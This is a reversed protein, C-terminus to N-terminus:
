LSSGCATALADLMARPSAANPLPVSLDQIGCGELTVGIARLAGEAHQFDRSLAGEITLRGAGAMGARATLVFGARPGTEAASQLGLTLTRLTLPERSGLVRVTGDVIRLRRLAIDPSALRRLVAALAAPLEHDLTVTLMPRRLELRSIRGGGAEVDWRDVALVLTEAVLPTGVADEFRAVLGDVKLHGSVLLRGNALLMTADLDARGEALQVAGGPLPFDRLIAPADLGRARLRVAYAGGGLPQGTARVSAGYLAMDVAFAADDGFAALRDLRASLERVVLPAREPDDEIVLAGQTVVLGNVSLPPPASGSRLGILTLAPAAGVVLRPSAVQVRQLLLPGGLLDMASATAVVREARFIERGAADRAVVDRLELRGTLPDYHLGTVAVGGPALAGLRSEVLLTLVGAGGLLTAGVTLAALIALLTKV